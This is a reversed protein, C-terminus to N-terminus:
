DLQTFRKAYGSCDLSESIFPLPYCNKITLNNLGQYNVILYLSSDKKRVFLIQTDAPSKSPKIFSSVLNPKIYTKLIKLEMPELSYILGYPPQKNDLLDISHNNIRIYELLEAVSDSSFINSVNSYETSIGTKESILLAVQARYSLHIPM